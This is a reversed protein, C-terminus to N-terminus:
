WRWSIGASVSRGTRWSARLVPGQRLEYPSDLLNKLDVKGSLGGRVPFRVSLDLLHRSEEKVDEVTVGSARANRIRPGVVNYLLTATWGEAVPSWTMGGNLVYPAQGVLARPEDSPNGTDVESRMLTVNAFASLNELSPTLRGLGTSFEIEVGENVASAANEFTRTDTGSRALYREEVPADFDKRFVGVSFVEGPRPYWEWRLDVNRILTRELNQNGIVQDGGLVERYTIPALERFEPRALTRSAAFRLQQRDTLSVVASLAPLLDTYDRETVSVQGVQNESTVNLTYQEQRVGGILRLRPLLAVDAMLFGATLEDDALYGGGALERSLLFSRDGPRANRGDFFEEPPAQWRPDGPAWDFAQIRFGQSAAERDTTRWRVGAKLESLDGGGLRFSFAYQASGELATETLSGFTRVAGEFDNFWVPPTPDMWTVFESRDPEAREVASTSLSWDLRHRSGAQHEGRLQHSRVYREVYTLREVRVTSRTNEDVGQESRATNDASRNYSNNLHIQSHNGLLM